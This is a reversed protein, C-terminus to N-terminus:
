YGSLFIWAQTSGVGGGGLFNQKNRLYDNKIM